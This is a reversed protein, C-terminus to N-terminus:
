RVLPHRGTSALYAGLIANGVSLALGVLSLVVGAVALGHHRSRLGQVGLVLGTLTLPLGLIPLCWAGLGLCGLVLAAVAKGGHPDRIDPLSDAPEEAPPADPEPRQHRDGGPVGFLYGVLRAVGWVVLGVLGGIVAGILAGPLDQAFVPTAHIAM